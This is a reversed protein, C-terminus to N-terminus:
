IPWFAIEFPNPALRAPYKKRQSPAEAVECEVINMAVDGNGQKYVRIPWTIGHKKLIKRIKPIDEDKFHTIYFIRGINNQDDDDFAEDFYSIRAGLDKIDPRVHKQLYMWVEAESNISIPCYDQEFIYAGALILLYYFPNHFEEPFTEHTSNEPKISM